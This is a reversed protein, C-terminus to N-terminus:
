NEISYIGSAYFAAREIFEKINKDFGEVERQDLQSLNGIYKINSINERVKEMKSIFEQLDASDENVTKKGLEKNHYKIEFKEKLGNLKKIEHGIQTKLGRIFVARMQNLRTNWHLEDSYYGYINDRKDNLDKKTDANIDDADEFKKIADLIEHKLSHYKTLNTDTEKILEKFESDHTTIEKRVDLALKRRLVSLKGIKGDLEKIELENEVQAIYDLIPKKNAEFDDRIGKLDEQGTAEQLKSKLESIKKVNENIVSENIVSESDRINEDERELHSPSDQGIKQEEIARSIAKRDENQQMKSRFGELKTKDKGKGKGKGESRDDELRAKKGKSPGDKSGEPSPSDDGRFRKQPNSGSAIHDM